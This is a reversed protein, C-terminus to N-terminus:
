EESSEIEYKEENNNDYFQIYNKARYIYECIYERDENEQKLRLISDEFEKSSFYMRMLDKYKKNKIIDFGSNKSIEKHNELYEIVQKNKLFKKYDTSNKDPKDKSLELSFDTLLLNEYTLELSQTNIKKAINGIFCQPLFDFFKLSGAAKLSDNIINKLTKHFRSKIKKRMDDSKFKRKKKERRKKGNPAIYYKKTKFKLDCFINENNIVQGSQSLNEELNKEYTEELKSEMMTDTGEIIKSAYSNFLGKGPTFPFYQNEEINKNKTSLPKAFTNNDDNDNINKNEIKNSITNCFKPKKNQKSKIIVNIFKEDEFPSFIAEKSLDVYFSARENNCNNKPMDDNAGEKEGTEAFVKYFEDFDEYNLNQKNLNEKCNVFYVKDPNIEDNLDMPAMVPNFIQCFADEQSCDEYSNLSISFYTEDMM